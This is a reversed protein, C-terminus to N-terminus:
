LGTSKYKAILENYVLENIESKPVLHTKNDYDVSLGQFSEYDYIYSQVGNNDIWMDGNHIPQWYVVQGDALLKQFKRYKM